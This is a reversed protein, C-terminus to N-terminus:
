RLVVEPFNIGIGELKASYMEKSFKSNINKKGLIRIKFGAHQWKGSDLLNRTDVLNKNRVNLIFPDITQFVDHDAILVICDSDEIADWLSLLEYPFRKVYPDHCKIMYGENEALKIFKIAPSERADDVNGKYAVGLVTILPKKIGNIMEKVMKLVHNPMSDNIERALSIIKCRTSNETLFWPDIAICHGGVGPGPKLINVRPHRNAM